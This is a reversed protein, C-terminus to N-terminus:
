TTSYLKTTQINSCPHTARFINKGLKANEIDITFILSAHETVEQDHFVYRAETIYPWLEIRNKRKIFKKQEGLTSHDTQTLVNWQM